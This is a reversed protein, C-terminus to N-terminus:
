GEEKEGLAASLKRYLVHDSCPCPNPLHSWYTDIHRTKIHNRAERLLNTLADIHQWLPDKPDYEGMEFVLQDKTLLKPNNM